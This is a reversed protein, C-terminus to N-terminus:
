NSLIIEPKKYFFIHEGFSLPVEWVKHDIVPANEGWRSVAREKEKLMAHHSPIYSTNDIIFDDPSFDLREIFERGLLNEAEEWQFVYFIIDGESPSDVRQELLSKAEKFNMIKKDNSLCYGACNSGKKMDGVIRMTGTDCYDPYQMISHMYRSLFVELNRRIRYYEMPCDRPIM